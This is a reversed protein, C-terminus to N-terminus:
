GEAFRWGAAVNLERHAGTMAFLRLVQAGAGTVVVDIGRERCRRSLDILAGLGSCDMFSVSGLDVSLLRGPEPLVVTADRLATGGVLDLEGHVEWVIPPRRAPPQSPTSRDRVRRRRAADGTVM